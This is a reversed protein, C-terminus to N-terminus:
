HLSVALHITQRIAGLAGLLSARSRSGPVEHGGDHVFVARWEPKCLRSLVVSTGPYSTDNQGWIHATPLQLLVPLASPTATGEREAEAIPALKCGDPLAAATPSPSWQYPIGGSLFIACRISRAGAPSSSAASRAREILFSAALQAGHSFALIGDFPGEAILFAELQELAAAYTEPQSPDFYAYGEDSEESFYPAIAPDIPCPITGEVYDFTHSDGLEHRLSATQVQLIRSNTGIGHLCLFHM